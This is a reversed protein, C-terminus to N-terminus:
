SILLSSFQQYSLTQIKSARFSKNWCNKFKDLEWRSIFPGINSSRGLLLHDPPYEDMVSFVHTLSGRRPDEYLVNSICIWKRYTFLIRHSTWTSYACPDYLKLVFYEIVFLTYFHCQFVSCLLGYADFILLFTQYHLDQCLKMELYTTTYLLLVM